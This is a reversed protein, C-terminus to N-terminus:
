RTEGENRGREQPAPRCVLDARYVREKSGFARQPIEYPCLWLGRAGRNIMEFRVTGKQPLSEFYARGSEDTVASPVLGGTGDAQAETGFPVPGGNELKLGLLARVGSLAPVNIEILASDAPVITKELLGVTVHAPISDPDIRLSNKMYDTLSVAVVSDGSAAGRDGDQLRFGDAGPVRVVAASGTFSRTAFVGGRYGILTGDAHLSVTRESEGWSASISAAGHEGDHSLGLTGSKSGDEARTGSASWNWRKEEDFYGSAGARASTGSDSHSLGTYLTTGSYDASGTLVDLPINLMAGLTWGSSSYSASGSSRSREASLSLMGGRKLPVNLVASLSRRRAGSKYRSVLGSATLNMGGLASFSQVISLSATDRLPEFRLPDTSDYAGAAQAMSLPTGSLTRSYSATIQTSEAAMKQWSLTASAGDEDAYKYRSSSGSASLSFAGLRGFDTSAGAQLYRYKEAAQLAGYLTYGGAFGYGASFLAVPDKEAGTEDLRGLAADWAFRGERLQRVGTMYPVYYTRDTGDDGRVNVEVTGGYGLGTLNDFRYPGAEVERRMIIRGAQRITIVSHASATGQIVPVYDREWSDKQDDDDRLEAGVISVSDDFHSYTSVDGATFRAGISPIVRTVHTQLRDFDSESQGARHDYTFTQTSEFRWKGANARLRVSAFARQSREGDTRSAAADGSYDAFLAPEGWDWMREPMIRSPRESLWAQPVAIDIVGMDADLSMTSGPFIEAPDSFTSGAPYKELTRVASKRLGAELLLEVPVKARLLGQRGSPDKEIVVTQTGVSRGNIKVEYAQRGLKGKLAMEELDAETIDSGLERRIEEMDFSFGSGAAEASVAALLLCGSLLGRAAAPLPAPSM